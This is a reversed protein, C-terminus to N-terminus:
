LRDHGSYNEIVLVNQPLELWATWQVGDLTSDQERLRLRKIEYCSRIMEDLDLREPKPLFPAVASFGCAALVTSFFSRRTIM